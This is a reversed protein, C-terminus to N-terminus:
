LFESKVSLFIRNERNKTINDPNKVSYKLSQGLVVDFIQTKIRIKPEAFLRHTGLESYPNPEGDKAYGGTLFIGNGQMQLSIGACVLGYIHSSNDPTQWEEDYSGMGMAFRYRNELAPDHGAAGYLEDPLTLRGGKARRFNAGFETGASVSLYSALSHTISLIGQSSVYLPAERDYTQVAVAKFGGLLQAMFGERAFWRDYDESQWLWKAYPFLSSTVVPEYVYGIPVLKKIEGNYFDEEDERSYVPTGSAGSTIERREIEAAIQLVPSNSKRKEGLPKDIGLVVSRGKEELLRAENYIRKQFFHIPEYEYIRLKAFFDGNDMFFREFRLNPEIGRAGQGYFATLNLNYGFQNIFRFDVNGAANVGFLTGGFGSLSLSLQPDSESYIQLFSGTDLTLKVNRYSGDNQLAVLFNRVALSGTDRPNWFSEL